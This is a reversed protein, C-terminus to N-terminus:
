GARKAKAARWIEIAEARTLLQAPAVEGAVQAGKALEIHASLLQLMGLANDAVDAAAKERIGLDPAHLSLDELIAQARTWTVMALTPLERYTVTTPLVLPAGRAAELAATLATSKVGLEDAAQTRIWDRAATRAEQDALKDAQKHEPTRKGAM